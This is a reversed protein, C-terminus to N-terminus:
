ALTQEDQRGGLKRIAYEVRLADALGGIDLVYPFIKKLRSVQANEGTACARLFGVIRMQALTGSPWSTPAFDLETCASLLSVADRRVRTHESGTQLYILAEVYVGITIQEQTLQDGRDEDM